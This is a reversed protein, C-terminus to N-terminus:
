RPHERVCKELSLKMNPAMNKSRPEEELYTKYAGRAAECHGLSVAYDGLRKIYRAGAKDTVM